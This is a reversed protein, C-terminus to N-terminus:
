PADMWPALPDIAAKPRVQAEQRAIEFAALENQRSAAALTAGAKLWEVDLTEAGQEYCFESGALAWAASAVMGGVAHSVSGYLEYLERRRAKLYALRRKNHPTFRPHSKIRRPLVQGRRPLKAMARAAESSRVRGQADRGENPAFVAPALRPLNHAAPAEPHLQSHSRWVPM